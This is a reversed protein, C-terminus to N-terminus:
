TFFFTSYNVSITQQSLLGFLRTLPQYSAAQLISLDNKFKTLYVSINKPPDAVGQAEGGGRGEM